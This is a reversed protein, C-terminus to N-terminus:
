RRLPYLCPRPPKRTRTFTECTLRLALSVELLSARPHSIPFASGFAVRSKRGCRRAMLTPTTRSSSRLNGYLRSDMATRLLPRTLINSTRTQYNILSSLLFLRHAGSQESSDETNTTILFSAFTMRTKRRTVTYSPNQGYHHGYCPVRRGPLPSNASSKALEHPQSFCQPV